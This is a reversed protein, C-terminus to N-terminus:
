LYLSQKLLNNAVISAISSNLESIKAESATIKKHNIANQEYLSKELSEFEKQKKILDSKLIEM